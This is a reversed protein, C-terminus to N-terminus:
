KKTIKISAFWDMVFVISKYIKSDKFKALKEDDKKSETFLVYTDLFAMIPKVFIRLSGVIVIFQAVFGLKGSYIEILPKLLVLLDEM